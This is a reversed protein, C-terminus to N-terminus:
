KDEHESCVVRKELLLSGLLDEPRAVSHSNKGLEVMREKMHLRGPFIDTVERYNRAAREPNGELEYLLGRYTLMEALDIRMQEKDGDKTKRFLALAADFFRAAMAYKGQRVALNGKELYVRYDGPNNRLAENLVGEALDPRGAEGALWFAAVAYATVNHPDARVSFYLWPMIELVGERHLHFHGHPRVENRMRSFWDTFAHPHYHGVGKHFVRDAQEFLFDGAELRTSGLIQYVLGEGTNKQLEPMNLLRCALAFALCWLVMVAISIGIRERGKRSPIQNQDGGESPHGCAPTPITKL